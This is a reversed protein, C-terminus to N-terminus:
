YPRVLVAQLEEPVKLRDFLKEVSMFWSVVEISENPMKCIVNRLADGWSKVKVATSERYKQENKKLELEERWKREEFEKQEQWRREELQRQLRQQELQLRQKERQLRQEERQLTQEELKREELWLRRKELSRNM